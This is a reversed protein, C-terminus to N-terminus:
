ELRLVVMLNQSLEKKVNERLFMNKVFRDIMTGFMRKLLGIKVDTYYLSEFWGHEDYYAKDSKLTEDRYIMSTRAMRIIALSFFSPSREKLSLVSSIFRAAAANM